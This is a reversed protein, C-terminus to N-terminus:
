SKVREFTLVWVWPNSEWPFGRKANLSDWTVQYSNRAEATSHFCGCDNESTGDVPGNCIWCREGEAIADEVSIEQLREFRVDTVRLTIQSAWRPMYIPSRWARRGDDDRCPCGAEYAGCSHTSLYDMAYGLESRPDSLRRWHAIRFDDCYWAEKVWLRDGSKGYPCASRRSRASVMRRTQTKRGDIIARVSEASMIIPREKM